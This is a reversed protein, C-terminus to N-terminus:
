DAAPPLIELGSLITEADRQYNPNDPEATTILTVLYTEAGGKAVVALTTVPRTVPVNPAGLGVEGGPRTRTQAPLGCVTITETTLNPPMGRETLMEDLTSNLSDFIEQADMDPVPDVTIAASNQREGEPTLTLRFSVGAIDSLTTPEWGAPRPIRIRPETADAAPIAVMPANVYRCTNTDAPQALGSVTETMAPSLGCAGLTLALTLGAGAYVLKRGTKNFDFM